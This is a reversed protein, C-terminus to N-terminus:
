FFIYRVLYESNLPYYSYHVALEHDFISRALFFSDSYCVYLLMTLNSACAMSAPLLSLASAPILRRFSNGFEGSRVETRAKKAPAVKGRAGNAVLYDICAQVPPTVSYAVDLPTRGQKDVANLDAGAEKLVVLSDVDGHL